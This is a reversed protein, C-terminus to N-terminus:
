EKLDYKIGIQPILMYLIHIIYRKPLEYRRALQKKMGFKIENDVLLSLMPKDYVYVM